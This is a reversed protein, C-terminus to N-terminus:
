KAAQFQVAPQANLLAVVGNVLNTVYTADVGLGAQAFMTVIPLEVIELVDALKQTNAAPGQAAWKQQITLVTSMVMKVSAAFAEEAPSLQPATVSVVVGAIPLAYKVVDALLVGVLHGATKLFGQFEQLEGPAGTQTTVQGAGVSSIAGTSM